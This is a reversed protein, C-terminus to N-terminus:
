KTLRKTLPSIKLSYEDTSHNIPKIITEGNYKTEKYEMKEINQKKEEELLKQMQKLADINRKIENEKQSDINLKKFFVRRIFWEEAVQLVAFPLLLGICTFLSNIPLAMLLILFYGFLPMLRMVFLVKKDIKQQKNIQNLVFEKEVIIQKIYEIKENTEYIKSLSKESIEGEVIKVNGDTIIYLGKAIKILKEAM